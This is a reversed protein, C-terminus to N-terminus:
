QPAGNLIWNLFLDYNARGAAGPTPNATINFTGTGGGGAHHQGSPKRLLPSAVIDTFNIRGRVETYFWLDDTADGSVGDGNRDINTYVIPAGTGTHCGTCGTQLIPKIHTAFRIASPAPALANNVVLTLQAPASQTSGNGTVLQVVYTGDASASFTPQASNAGTLTFGTPPV